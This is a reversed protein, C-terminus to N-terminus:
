VCGEEWPASWPMPAGGVEEAQVALTPGHEADDFNPRAVPKLVLGNRNGRGGLGLKDSRERLGTQPLDLGGAEDRGLPHGLKGIRVVKPRGERGSRKVGGQNRISLPEVPRKRDSNPPDGEKGSGAFGERQLVDVHRNLFREHLEIHRGGRKALRNGIAPDAPIEAGRELARVRPLDVRRGDGLKRNAEFADAAILDANAVRDPDGYRRLHAFQRASQEVHQRFLLDGIVEV